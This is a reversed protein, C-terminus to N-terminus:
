NFKPCKAIYQFLKDKTFPKGIFGKAGAKIAAMVNEGQSNGSLMVIYANKDFSLTKILVDHGTVDPLDIDLFVIDPAKHLYASISEYGDEAFTVSHSSLAGSILKRSFPDDEVVLIELTTRANRRSEVTDILKPYLMSRFFAARKEEKSEAHKQAAKQRQEEAKSAIKSELVDILIQLNGEVEYLSLLRANRVSTYEHEFRAQFCERIQTFTKISLSPSFVFHDRDHCIYIEGSQGIWRTILEPLIEIDKPTFPLGRIHLVHKSDSLGDGARLKQVLSEEVQERIVKM